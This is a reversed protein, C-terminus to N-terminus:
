NNWAFGEVHEAVPVNFSNSELFKSIASNTFAGSDSSKGYQGVGVATFCYNADGFALLIISFTGKYNFFNSGSNTSCDIVVHKGDGAGICHPFNWLNSFQESVRKWEQPTKPTPLYTDHLQTWIADCTERIIGSVTSRGVRFNFSQSQQSDGTALYRLTLTLREAVSIPSRLKTSTKSILPAVLSLLHEFRQPTM